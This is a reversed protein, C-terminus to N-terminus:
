ESNIIFWDNGQKKIKGEYSALIADYEARTDNRVTQSKHDLGLGRMFSSHNLGESKLLVEAVLANAESFSSGGTAKGKEKFVAPTDVWSDDLSTLEAPSFLKGEPALAPHYMWKNPNITTEEAKENM